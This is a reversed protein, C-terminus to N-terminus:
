KCGIKLDKIDRRLNRKFLALTKSNKTDENLKNFINFGPYNITKEATKTRKKISILNNKQRTDYKHKVKRIERNLYEPKLKNIM